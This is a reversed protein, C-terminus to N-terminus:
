PPLQLDAPDTFVQWSDRPVDQFAQQYRPYDALAGTVERIYVKAIQRPFRRAILGYVEPDQEGSDGVLVFRRQPYAQLLSEIIPPKTALPDSFLNWFSSDKLRFRKLHLTAAPFGASRLFQNLPEYLQWPSSSVYHIIAGRDSWRRYVGAMGDVARYERLFTNELLKRRDTVESVKITDDIDSIVSIGHQPVILVSGAFTREDGLSTVAQFPLQGNRALRNVTSSDLRTEAQFHGDPDSARLAVVRDGFRVEIRKGGENDVLFLRCRDAFIRAEDGDSDLGLLRRFSTVTADRLVDGQEPEYIWGHLPITWTGQDNLRAATPFFVVREDSRIQGRAPDARLGLLSL